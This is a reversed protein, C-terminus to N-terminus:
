QRVGIGSNLTQQCHSVLIASNFTQCYHRGVRNISLTKRGHRDVTPHKRDVLKPQTPTPCSFMYRNTITNFGDSPTIWPRFSFDDFCKTRSTVNEQRKKIKKRAQKKEHTPKGKATINTPTVVTEVNKELGVPIPFRVCGILLIQPLHRDAIDTLLTQCCLCYRVVSGVTHSM